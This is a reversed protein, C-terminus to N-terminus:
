DKVNGKRRDIEALINKRDRVIGRLQEDEKLVRGIDARVERYHKRNWSPSEDVIANDTGDAIDEAVDTSSESIIARHLRSLCVRRPIQSGIRTERKCIMDFDDNSNLENYRAFFQEDVARLRHRLATISDDAFVTIEEVPEPALAEDQRTDEPEQAALLALSLLLGPIM